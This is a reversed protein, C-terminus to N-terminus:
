IFPLTVFCSCVFRKDKGQKDETEDAKDGDAPQETSADDTMQRSHYVQGPVRRVASGRKKKIPAPAKKRTPTNPPADREFEAPDPADFAMGSYKSHLLLLMSTIVVTSSTFHM